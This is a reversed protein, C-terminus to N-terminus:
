STGRALVTDLVKATTAARSDWSHGAVIVDRGRMGMERARAPDLALLKVARALSKPDDPPVV